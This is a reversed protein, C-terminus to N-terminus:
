RRITVVVPEGKRIVELRLPREFYGIAFRLDDLSSVKETGVKIIVDGALMGAEKALTGDLVEMVLVGEDVRFYEALDPNLPTLQAGAVFNQGLVIHRTPGRSEYERFLIRAREESTSTAEARQRAVWREQERVAEALAEQQRHQQESFERLLSEQSVRQLERSAQQQEELLAEERAKLERLREDQRALEEVPGQVGAQLERMRALEERRVETLERRIRKMEERFPATETSSVVLAGFPLAEESPSFFIGTQWRSSDPILLEEVHLADAAFPERIRYTLDFYKEVEAQTPPAEVIRISINGASDM